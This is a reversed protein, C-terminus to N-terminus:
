SRSRKMAHCKFIRDVPTGDRLPVGKVIQYNRFGMKEYYALGSQNDARIAANIAVVDREGAWIKSRAFLATGAGRTRVESRAFTGIDAWDTPLGPHRSLSQFGLPRSTLTDEAVFCALFREGELFCGTFAALSLPDEMATTGGAMIIANLIDCLAAADAPVAHRVHIEFRATSMAAANYGPMPM